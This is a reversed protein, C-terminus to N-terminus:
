EFQRKFDLFQQRVSELEQRLTQVETELRSIRDSSATAKVGVPDGGTTPEELEIEPQGSLLHAYRFEKRGPQRPLKLVLPDEREMMNQLTAEVETIDQFGYLRDARSRLEGPTQPGRLMLECIIALEDPSLNLMEHFIHKYKPVRSSTSTILWALGKKRLGDLTGLVLEEDYAVVPDRNSKQNCANTLANLSLPYYEPTTIEKEIMSGLVRVETATLIVNM